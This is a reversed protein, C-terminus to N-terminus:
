CPGVNDAPLVSSNCASFPGCPRCAFALPYATRRMSGFAKRPLTSRSCCHLIARVGRRTKRKKMRKTAPRRQDRQRDGRGLGNSRGAAGLFTREAVLLHLLEARERQ